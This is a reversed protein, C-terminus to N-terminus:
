PSNQPPRKSRRRLLGWSMLFLFLGFISSYIVDKITYDYLPDQTLIISGLISGVGVFILLTAFLVKIVRGVTLRDPLRTTVKDAIRAQIIKSKLHLWMIILLPIVLFALFSETFLLFNFTGHYFVAIAFGKILLKQSKKSDVEFRAKGIFYGMIGSFLAHAPVSIFARIIGITFGGDLVYFINELTAFGLSAIITYTIGDMVEDFYKSKYVHTKVVWLKLAEEVFAAVIFSSVIIYPFFNEVPDIFNQFFGDVYVEIFGAFVTALLGWKFIKWKLRRPEKRGKDQKEFFWLLIVAPLISLLVLLFISIIAM